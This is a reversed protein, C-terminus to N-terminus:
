MVERLPQDIGEIQRLNEDRQEILSTKPAYPESNLPGPFPTLIGGPGAIKREATLSLARREVRWTRWISFDKRMLSIGLGYFRKSDYYHTYKNGEIEWGERLEDYDVESAFFGRSKVIEKDPTIGQYVGAQAAFLRDINSFEWGGLNKGPRVGPSQCFIGDTSVMIIGTSKAAARLVKARTAATIYGAWFYSQWAPRSNFGQGQALKGYIANLGLKIVKEAGSGEAKLRQREAFVPKIWAFPKVGSEKLVWGELVEVPYGSEIAAAVEVGHYWGSGQAPWYIAQKIRVPFPAIIGPASGMDWRVRWIGQKTSDFRKRHVLKAGDLSPLNLCASPYASRIDVTKVRSFIGQRILEIRGAYYAGLIVTEAVADPAIDVDYAHHNQMGRAALM